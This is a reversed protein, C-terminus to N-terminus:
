STILNEEWKSAPILQGGFLMAILRWVRHLTCELLLTTATISQVDGSMVARQATLTTVSLSQMVLIEQLSTVEKDM